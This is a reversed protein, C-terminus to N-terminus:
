KLKFQCLIIKTIGRVLPGRDKMSASVNILMLLITIVLAMRGPVLDVPILFSISSIVVLLGTPLYVNVLFSEIKRSFKIHFGTVSYIEGTLQAKYEKYVLPNFEMLYTPLQDLKFQHHYLVQSTYVQPHFMRILFFLSLQHLQMSACAEYAVFRVEYNKDFLSSGVFFDCTHKDLPYLVFNM